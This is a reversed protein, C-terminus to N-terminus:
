RAGGQKGVDILIAALTELLLTARFPKQLFHRVGIREADDRQPRTLNGSALLAPAECGLQRLARVFELGNMGPMNVDVLMASITPKTDRMVGVAAAPQTFALVDYGARRLVLTAVRVVAAEDDLVLIRQGTGTPSPTAPADATVPPRRDEVTPLLVTFSSGKGPESVASVSGGLEAVVGHVVSLGLGTGEGDPKTTFFPEFVRRLTREDMGKGTDNVTLRAYRGPPLGPGAADVGRALITEDLFIQIRGSRDGIAHWANTCLNILIQHMETRDGQVRPVNPDLHAVLEIGAPLTARLFVLADEVAQQLVLPSRAVIQKRSFTLIRKVLDGARLGAGVIGDLCERVDPALGEQQLALDANLLIAALVNNVDHAVGGALTGLADMKQVQQARVELARRAQEARDSETMDRLVVTLLQRGEVVVRSIAAECRFEEGDSRVGVVRAAGMMARSTTGHRAFQDVQQRHEARFREPLLQDLTKGIMDKAPCRFVKEAAANFIVIRQNEDHTIIADMASAIIGAFQARSEDLRRVADRRERTAQVLRGLLRAFEIDAEDFPAARPAASSFCLVGVLTDNERLPVGLFSGSRDLVGLSEAEVSANAIALLDGRALMAGYSTGTLPLAQGDSFTGDPFVQVEVVVEDATVVRGVVAREMGFHEVGAQLARRLSEAAPLNSLAAAENLKRLGAVQRRMAAEDRARDTMVSEERRAALQVLIMGGVAIWQL